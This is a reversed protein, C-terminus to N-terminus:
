AWISGFHLFNWHNAMNGQLGATDSKTFSRETNELRYIRVSSCLSKWPCRAFVGVCSIVTSLFSLLVAFNLLIKGIYRTILFGFHVNQIEANGCANRTNLSSDAKHVSNRLLVLPHWVEFNRIWQLCCWTNECNLRKTGFVFYRKGTEVSFCGRNLFTFIFERAM